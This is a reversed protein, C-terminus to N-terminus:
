VGDRGLAARLFPVEVGVVEGSGRDRLFVIRDVAEGGYHFWDATQWATCFGQWAGQGPLDSGSTEASNPLFDLNIRWDERIVSVNTGTANSIGEQTPDSPFIRFDTSLAGFQPLAQSYFSSMAALIDSGNRTLADLKIGPGDDMSTNLTVLGDRSTFNGAHGQAQLRTEQEVAPLIVSLMADYLIRYADAPGATLIALGIGYHDIVALQATYGYAGGNKSYIDITHHHSPTLNTSRFIEWPQGVSTSPSSTHSHPQLWQRDHTATRLATKDLISQIIRTLDHLSSYLGGGPTGDGYHAGWNNPGPPIAALSTIGPSVGTNNLNFPQIVYDDLLQEYSKNLHAGLAYSLLTFSLQSYVPRQYPMTVPRATLLQEFLQEKSCPKNLGDVGCSPYADIPLSPFGLQELLPQLFYWESFGGNPPIGSLHDTLSALTINEWSIVSSNSALQPLYETVPAQLDIETRLFALDSILKSISGVLYQTDGDIHSTGNTNASGRHHYEWIPVNSPDDHSILGISFSTNEVIFGSRIQGEIARDLSDQLTGTAAKVIESNAINTPRPLLPGDPPCGPYPAASSSNCLALLLICLYFM